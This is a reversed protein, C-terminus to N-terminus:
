LSSALDTTQKAAQDAAPGIRVMANRVEDITKPALSLDNRFAAVSSQNFAKAVALAVAPAAETLQDFVDVTLKGQTAIGKLAGAVASEDSGSAKVLNAFVRAIDSARNNLSSLDGVFKNTQNGEIARNFTNTISSLTSLSVGTDRSAKQIKEFDGGGSSLSRVGKRLTDVRDSANELAAIFSGGIAIALGTVGARAAGVFGSFGGMSAGTSALVPDLVHMAERFARTSATAARHADDVSKAAGSIDGLAKATASAGSTATKQAAGLDKASQAVNKQSVNLKDLDSAAQTVGQTTVKIGLEADAM